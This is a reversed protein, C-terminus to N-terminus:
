DDYAEFDGHRSKHGHHFGKREGKRMDLAIKIVPNRYLTAKSVKLNDSRLKELYQEVTWHPYKRILVLAETELEVAQDLRDRREADPKDIQVTDIDKVSVGLIKVTRALDGDCKERTLKFAEDRLMNNLLGYINTKDTGLAWYIAMQLGARARLEGNAEEFTIDGALIQPGRRHHFARRVVIQLERINGPWSHGRLKKWSADDLGPVRGRVTRHAEEALFYYTLKELDDMREQLPPLHITASKLHDLLDRRFKSEPIAHPEPRSSAVIRVDVPVPENGGLRAVQREELVRLVEDQLARPLESVEDLYLTGGNAYEFMGRRRKREGRFGIEHGFLDDRLLDGDPKNCHAVVFRKAQRPGNDHIARAVLNKGTGAEGSILVPQTTRVVQGIRQYVELMARCNGVLQPGVFVGAKGTEPPLAVPPPDSSNTLAKAIRPKLDKLLEGTQQKQVCELALHKTADIILQPDGAYSVMIVPVGVEREELKKLFEIGSVKPLGNDLLLLAFEGAALRELAGDDAEALPTVDHEPKLGRRLRESFDPDDDILLINAM